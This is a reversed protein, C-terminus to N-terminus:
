RSSPLGKDSEERIYEFIEGVIEQKEDFRHKEVRKMKEPEEM